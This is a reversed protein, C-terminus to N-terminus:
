RSLALAQRGMQEWSAIFQERPARSAIELPDNFYIFHEDYGTILVAHMRRTVYMPGEVTNWRTFSTQPLPAYSGNTMVWVPSNAYVFYLLDEFESGSLNLASRPFYEMLLRHMPKYYVGLGRTSFSYMDGVFGAQMNGNYWRGEIYIHYPERPVRQALEMKDVNVGYFQLLMALSVVSCGRPLLPLQLILPVNEIFHRPPIIDVNNWIFSNDRRHVIFARPHPRAFEVAEAFTYFEVYEYSTLFVNFPLYNDWVRQSREKSFISARSNDSAFIFAEQYTRFERTLRGGFFVQYNLSPNPVVTADLERFVTRDPAPGPSSDGSILNYLRMIRDMNSITIFYGGGVSVFLLVVFLLIIGKKM